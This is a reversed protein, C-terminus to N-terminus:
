LRSKCSNGEVLEPEIVRAVKSEEPPIGKIQELMLEAAMEGLKEQPHTITTLQLISNDKRYSNDYGTLSIDQPVQIEKKQLYRYVEIAIQDNYCVIADIGIQGDLMIDLMKVPKSTRDETHFWIVLDTNYELGAEMLAKVYGKHREKGQSDDAKFIGVIQKHGRELLYKTLLYVGKEDNMLIHPKNRMQIHYGQIFIYPIGLEDLKKYLDMHKCLIQSKSPEIIIGDIDKTLMDELYKKENARSNGTNKLLISYENETLVREIGQILRPFIYDSLYTTIVAINKSHGRQRTKKTCFTGVGHIAEVFGEDALISLAKRVTHRSVQYTQSLENESAIKEGARITGGLIANKIDETLIAYKAKGGQQEM